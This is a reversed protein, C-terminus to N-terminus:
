LSRLPVGQLPQRIYDDKERKSPSGKPVSVNKLHWSVVTIALPLGKWSTNKRIGFVQHCHKFAFDINWFVSHRHHTFLNHVRLSRGLLRWSTKKQWIHGHRGGPIAGAKLSVRVHNTEHARLHYGDIEIRQIIPGFSGKGRPPTGNQPCPRSEHPGLIIHAVEGKM